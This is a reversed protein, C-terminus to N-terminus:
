NVSERRSQDRCEALLSINTPEVFNAKLCIYKILVCSQIETIDAKNNM